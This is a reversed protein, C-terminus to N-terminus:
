KSEELKRKMMQIGAIIHPANPALRAAQLLAQYARRYEKKKSYVVGLNYYLDHFELKKRIGALFVAEARALQNQGIYLVGLLKYADANLANRKLALIFQKEAEAKRGLLQYCRGLEVHANVKMALAKEFHFVAKKFQKKRAFIIGLKHRTDAVNSQKVTSGVNVALIFATLLLLPLLFPKARKERAMEHLRHLAFGAFLLLMPVIPFRYRATIYFAVTGTFIAIGLLYLLFVKKRDRLSFFIGLLGFPALLGFTLWPLKLMPVEDDLFYFDFNDPEEYARWFLFSKLLLLKLFKGPHRAIHDFTQGYWYSSVESPKLDRGTAKRAVAMSEKAEYFPVTKVGPPAKQIGTATPGNGIYFNLGASPPTVVFDKAVIHNRVGVPIMTLLIGGAFLAVYKLSKLKGATFFLWGLVLVAFLLLNARTYITVGMVVGAFLLTLLRRKERFRLLIDMSLLMLLITLSEKFLFAEYFFFLKYLAALVMCIVAVRYNFFKLALRYLLFCSLLGFLIQILAVALYNHGFIKYIVALFYPYLPDQYFIESGLVKGKAIELAWQDYAYSDIIPNLFLPHDKVQLLFLLRLILTLALITIVVAKRNALFARLYARTNSNKPPAM